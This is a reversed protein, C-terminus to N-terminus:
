VIEDIQFMLMSAFILRRMADNKGIAINQHSKPNRLAAMAGAFIFRTGAQIDKGTQTELDGVKFMPNNDAFIKNMLAQGDPVDKSDPYKECYIGKLRYNVEIFANCAAEAYSGDKFLKGSVRQIDPHLLHCLNDCNLKYANFIQGQVVSIAEIVRGCVIPNIFYCQYTPEMFLANRLEILHSSIAPSIDSIQQAVGTIGERVALVANFPIPQRYDYGSLSQLHFQLRDIITHDM